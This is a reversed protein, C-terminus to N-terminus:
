PFLLNLFILNSIISEPILHNAILYLYYMAYVALMTECLTLLYDLVGSKHDEMEFREM